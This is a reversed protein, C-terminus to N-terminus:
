TLSILIEVSLNIAFAFSSVIEHASAEQYFNDTIFNVLNILDRTNRYSRLLIAFPLFHWFSVKFDPKSHLPPNSFQKAWM